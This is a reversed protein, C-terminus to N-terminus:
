HHIGDPCISLANPPGCAIYQTNCDDNFSRLWVILNDIVKNFLIWTFIPTIEGCFM